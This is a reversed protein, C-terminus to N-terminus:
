KLKAIKKKKLEKKAKLPITFIFKSGKGKKSEVWINGDHAEVIGKCIALGLGTGKYKISIKKSAQKFPEFVRESEKKSMGIGTDQVCVRAKDGQKKCKLTITGKKPTFKMANDILNQVCEYIKDRDFEAIIKQLDYKLKIKNKQLTQEFFKGAEKIIKSLDNKAVNISIKKGQMMSVNLLDRILKELRRMNDMILNIGEDQEKTLKGMYGESFLQLQSYIPTLPTKLSHSIMSLFETKMEDVEELSAMKAMTKKLKEKQETLKKNKRELEENYKQAKQREIDFDELINLLADIEYKETDKSKKTKKM